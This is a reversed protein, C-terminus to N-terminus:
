EKDFLKSKILNNKRLYYFGHLYASMHDPTHGSPLTVRAWKAATGLIHSPQEVVEIGHRRAYGKIDGIVQITEVKSNQHNFKHNRVRYEELVWKDAELKPLMVDLENQNVTDMGVPNYAEDWVAVGISKSGPDFAVIKYNGEPLILFM